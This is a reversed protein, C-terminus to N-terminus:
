SKLYDAFENLPVWIEVRTGAPNNLSDYLDTIQHRIHRRNMQNLIEYFENVLKLGKGTSNSLGSSYGRGIGNDEVTLKIYDREKAASIRIKGGRSSPMIGHKVANEAFTQLVLKPVQENMSLGDGIEIEYDFKEGFRLKELELYTTVFEIEEGLNRYIREADNLMTRLLQTFKRMYDYATQRDELYILSAISNLTNFTFHPDLQAKIGQLQLAILRRNLTEKAKLQNTNIRKIIMIFLFLSLYIGPYALYSFIYYNNRKLSLFYGENGSSLFLKYEGSKTFFPFFKCREDPIEFWCEALRNLELDYVALKNEDQSYLLFEDPGDGDIDVQFSKMGSSFPLKVARVIEFKDNLEFFEDGSLYIRDEPSSKVVFVRAIGEKTFDSHFRKRVFKGEKTYLMIMSKSGKADAGNVEYSLVYGRFDRNQFYSPILGNAFGPFEVPPFKFDLNDDFVMLWASSDSYPENTSYNGSAASQGFIEPRLDGDTDAMDPHLCINGCFRSSHLRRNALDFCYMRRTGLQYYSSISFYLEDTGDHNRDHFGAPMVIAAVQGNLYGIKTIYIREMRTGSPELMENVNLFLSDTKNSFIYIESFSDHDYNGFFLDSISPTLSDALNWQDYIQNDANWAMVYYYPITKGSVVLESVNDSNLDTYVNRGAYKIPQEVLLIFRSGIPPLLLLMFIAPVAALFWSSYIIRKIVPDGKM